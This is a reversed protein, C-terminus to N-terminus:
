GLKSQLGSDGMPPGGDGRSVGLRAEQQSCPAGAEYEGRLQERQDWLRRAINTGTSTM